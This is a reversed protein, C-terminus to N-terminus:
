QINLHQAILKRAKLRRRSLLLTVVVGVGIGIGGGVEPSGSGLGVVYGLAGGVFIAWRSYDPSPQYERCADCTARHEALLPKLQEVEAAYGAKGRLGSAKVQDEVRGCLENLAPCEPDLGKLLDDTSM